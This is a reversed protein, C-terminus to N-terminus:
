QNTLIVHALICICVIKRDKETGMQRDRDSDREGREGGM